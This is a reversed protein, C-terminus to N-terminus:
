GRRRTSPTTRSKEGGGVRAQGDMGVAQKAAKEGKPTIKTQTTNKSTPSNWYYVM